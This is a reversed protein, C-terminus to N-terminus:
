IKRCSTCKLFVRKGAHQGVVIEADNANRQFGRIVLRTGNLPQRRRRLRVLLRLLVLDRRLRLRRGMQPVRRAVDHEGVVLVLVGTGGRRTGGGGRDIFTVAMLGKKDVFTIAM